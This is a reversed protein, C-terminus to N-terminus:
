PSCGSADSACPWADAGRGLRPGHRRGVSHRARRPREAGRRPHQGRLDTGAAHPDRVRAHGACHRRARQARAADRGRLAFGRAAGDGAVDGRGPGDGGAGAGLRRAAGVRRVVRRQARLGRGARQARRDGCRPRPRGHDRPPVDGLRARQRRRDRQAARPQAAHRQLETPVARGHRGVHRRRRRSPRAGPEGVFLLSVVAAARVVDATIMLARRPLRDVLPAGLLGVVASPGVQLVLLTALLRTGADDIVSTAVALAFVWDGLHSVGQAAWLRMFHRNGRLEVFQHLSPPLPRSGCLRWLGWIAGAVVLVDGISFVNALPWSEPVAFVDGLAALRPDALAISNSFGRPAAVLGARGLADASAPM